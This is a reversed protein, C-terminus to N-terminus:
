ANDRDVIIIGRMREARTDDDTAPVFIVPDDRSRKVDHTVYCRLFELDAEWDWRAFLITAGRRHEARRDDRGVFRVVEGQEPHIV